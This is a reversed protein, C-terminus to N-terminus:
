HTQNIMKWSRHMSTTTLSPPPHLQHNRAPPLTWTPTPHPRSNSQLTLKTNQFHLIQSQLSWRSNWEERFLKGYVGVVAQKQVRLSECRQNNGRVGSTTQIRSTTVSSDPERMNIEVYAKLLHENKLPIDNWLAKALISTIAICRTRYPSSCLTWAKSVTIATMGTAFGKKTAFDEM